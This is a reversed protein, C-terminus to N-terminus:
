GVRRSDLVLNFRRDRLGLEEPRRSDGFLIAPQRLAQQAQRLRLHTVLAVRSDLGLKCQGSMVPDGFSEHLARITVIRVARIILGHQPLGRPFAADIAVDLLTTREHIFMGSHFDFAAGRAVSRMARYISLEQEPTFATEEAQLAMAVRM